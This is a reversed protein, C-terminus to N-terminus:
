RRLGRRSGRRRSRERSVSAALANTRARWIISKKAATSLRLDQYQRKPRRSAEPVPGGFLKQQGEGSPRVTVRPTPKATALTHQRQLQQVELNPNYTSASLTDYVRKM